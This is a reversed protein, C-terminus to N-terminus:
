KKPQPSLKNVLSSVESPYCDVSIPLAKQLAYGLCHRLMFRAVDAPLERTGNIFENIRSSTYTRNCKKNILRICDAQIKGEAAMAELFTSVLNPKM